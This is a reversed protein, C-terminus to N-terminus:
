LRSGLLLLDVQLLKQIVGYNNSTDECFINSTYGSNCDCGYYDWRKGRRVSGHGNCYVDTDVAHECSSGTYGPECGLYCPYFYSGLSNYDSNGAKVYIDFKPNYCVGNNQCYIHGWFKACEHIHLYKSRSATLDENYCYGGNDPKHGDGDIVIKIACGGYLSFTFTAATPACFSGSIAFREGNDDDYFHWNKGM